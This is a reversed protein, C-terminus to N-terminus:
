SKCSYQNEWHILKTQLEQAQTSCELIIIVQILESHNHM